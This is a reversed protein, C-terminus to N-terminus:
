EVHDLLGMGIARAAPIDPASEKGTEQEPIPPPEGRLIACIDEFIINALRRFFRKLARSVEPELPKGDQWAKMITRFEELKRRVVLPDDALEPLAEAAYSQLSLAEVIRGLGGHALEFQRERAPKTFLGTGELAKDFFEVGGALVLRVNKPDQPPNETLEVLVRATTEWSLLPSLVALLHQMQRQM